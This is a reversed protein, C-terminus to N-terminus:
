RTPPVELVARFGGLPGPEDPTQGTRAGSRAYKWDHQATGGRLVRKTGAAPGGNIRHEGYVYPAYWDQCWEWVNGSTHWLGWPNPRYGQITATLRAGDPPGERRAHLQHPEAFDAELLNAPFPSELYPRAGWWFLSTTGARCAYEWEAETPLRYRRVGELASLWALFTQADDWAVGVAPLDDADTPTGDTYASVHRKYKPCQRYERNSVETVGLYFPTQIEVRANAQAELWIDGEAEPLGMTFSGAPILVFRMGLTNEIAVPIGLRAAEAQQVDSVHAWEPRSPWAPARPGDGPLVRWIVAGLALVGALLGLAYGPGRVRPGRPAPTGSAPPSPARRSTTPAGAGGAFAEAFAECTPFRREPQRELARMVARAVAPPLDPRQELLPRAPKRVKEVLMAIPTSEDFPLRGTLAEYVTVALGYQDVAGTVAAGSAQEPAMYAPSGPPVGTETLRADAVGLARAIGFDSLYVAGHADFLVNGPKVDRHVWGDGHMTDLARAVDGLWPVVDGPPLGGPAAAIRDGLSGGPLYQLVMWPTDSTAGADLIRVVHPEEHQVLARVEREFRERFGEITLLGAHPRKVVVDRQLTVDRALYVTAM